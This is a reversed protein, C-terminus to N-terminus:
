KRAIVVLQPINFDYDSTNAITANRFGVKYLDSIIQSKSHHWFVPVTAVGTVQSDHYEEGGVWSLQGDKTLSCIPETYELDYLPVTFVFWGNPKLVRCVESFGAIYNPVHELVETCSVLDFICDEFTLNQIDENRIGNVFRSTISPGFYESCEFNAFQDKLYRYVAGHFSLEYVASTPALPLMKIQAVSALSIATARCNLCRISRSEAGSILFRTRRRCGVCYRTPMSFHGTVVSRAIESLYNFYKNM